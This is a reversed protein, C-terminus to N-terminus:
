ELLKKRLQALVPASQEQRLRLREAVSANRVQREVAYLVRVMEVAERAIEPAAKEAEIIKEKACPGLMRRAHDRQGGGHRRLQWTVPLHEFNALDRRGQRRKVRRLEEEPKADRPLDDANVPKWGLVCLERAPAGPKRDLEEAFHLLMPTLDNDSQLRDARPGYYWKKYRELELQLRLLEVQLDDARRQEQNRELLLSRIVAKLSAGDDPLEVLEPGIPPM